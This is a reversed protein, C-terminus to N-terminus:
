GTVRFGVLEKADGDQDGAKIEVVYEGPPLAALPLDIQQEGQRRRAARGAAREDGLRRPESLQASCRRRRAAPATPRCASWCISPAASSARRRAPRTPTPGAAAPVRPGHARPVAAPTGLLPQPATLDPVTIERSRPTSCRRPPAKSRCGCSCRARAPARLDRAAARRRRAAAGGADRVGSAGGARRRPRRRM